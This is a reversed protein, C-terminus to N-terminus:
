VKQIMDFFNNALGIGLINKWINEELVKITEPRVNLDENWKLNIETLPIFPTWNRMKIHIDLKGLVM